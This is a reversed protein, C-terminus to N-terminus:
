NGLKLIVASQALRALMAIFKPLNLCDNPLIPIGM